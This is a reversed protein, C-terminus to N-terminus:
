QILAEIYNRQATTLAMIAQHYSAEATERASIADAVADAADEVLQELQELTPPDVTTVTPRQQPYNSALPKRAPKKKM